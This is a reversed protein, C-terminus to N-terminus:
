IDAWLCAQNYMNISNLQVNKFQKPNEFTKLKKKTKLNELCFRLRPSPLSSSFMFVCILKQSSGARKPGARNTQARGPKFNKGWWIGLM